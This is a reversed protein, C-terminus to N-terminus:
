ERHFPAPYLAHDRWNGESNHERAEEANEYVDFTPMSVDGDLAHPETKVIFVQETETM